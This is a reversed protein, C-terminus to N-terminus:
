PHRYHHTSTDQFVNAFYLFLAVIIIAALIAFFIKVTSYPKEGTISGTQGNVVFQYIKGNYTYAAIWIPLLIHKFTLASKRSSVQLYRQTDGPVQKSCLAYLSEDMRKDARKFGEKLDMQYVECDWGMLYQSDYNVIKELKFDNIKDLVDQPLGKSAVILVDDFFYEYYGSTPVWRVKQVQRTQRRGESDTYTETEYYYYGAEATWSSETFADYTWFPLYIGRIKDLRAIEGLDNPHFWGEGIWAKFMDLAKKHSITFPLVGVPQIVNTKMAEENVSTSGCFPCSTNVQKTEVATNSGCSKCKILKQDLGFGRPLEDINFGDGLHREVIKDRGKPLAWSHRCHACALQQTDASYSIEKSGCNPCQMSLVNSQKKDEM